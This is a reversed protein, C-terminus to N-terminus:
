FQKRYNTFRKDERYGMRTYLRLAGSLNKTDVGLAAEEMGKEKLMHLSQAILSSALGHKRYPRRVSIDETWGRKRNYEENEQPNIYTLVMGAVEDGSWAVKWLRPDFHPVDMLEEVTWQWDDSHGWHDRFAENSADCILQYHEPEVPRVELGEPMPSDPINELDPRVMRFFHRVPEFKESLLLKESATETDSAFSEFYRPVGNKHDSAIKRLRNQNYHLVTRGIGKRRWEPVVFGFHVYINEGTNESHWSVRSYGIPKDDIQFFLMDEYPDCNVLHKYSKAIEEATETREEQDEHKCSQIINAMIPFDSDGHFGRFNLGPIEPANTIFIRNNIKSVTSM